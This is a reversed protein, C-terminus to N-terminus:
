HSKFKDAIDLWKDHWKEWWREKNSPTGFAPFQYLCANCWEAMKLCRKYKQHRIEIDADYKFCVKNYGAKFASEQQRDPRELYPVYVWYWKLNDM